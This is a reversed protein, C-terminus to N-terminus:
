FHKPNMHHEQYTEIKLYDHAHMKLRTLLNDYDELVEIAAHLFNTNMNAHDYLFTLAGEIGMEMADIGLLIIHFDDKTRAKMKTMWIAMKGGCTLRVNYDVSLDQMVSQLNEEHNKFVHLIDVFIKKSAIDKANKELVRMVASGMHVSSLFKQMANADNM